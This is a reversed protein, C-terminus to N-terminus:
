FGSVFVDSELPVSFVFIGLVQSLAKERAGEFLIVERVIVCAFRAKLRKQARTEVAEDRIFAFGALPELAATVHVVILEIEGCGFVLEGRVGGRTEAGFVVKM